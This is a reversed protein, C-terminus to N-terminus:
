SRKAESKIDAHYPIEFDPVIPEGYVRDQVNKSDDEGIPVDDAIINPITMMAKNIKSELESVDKEIVSIRENNKVVQAKIENSEDIRKEKMLAGIKSSMTNREARLRDGEQKLARIQSDMELVDDVLRLKSDQFKKKINERVKDPNTRILNIDIM